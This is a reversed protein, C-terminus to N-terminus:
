DPLKGIWQTLRAAIDLNNKELMMLHGNGKVGQDELRWFTTPVGAQKLFAASCHDYPAHYSAEGTVMLVPVNQLNVLKRAPEKQRWCAVLGPADPQAQQEILIEAPDTVAPEYRVPINTLGWALERTAQTANQFPPGSPEIAVIGKVLQPRADAISWGFLGAQSHTLLVAPGIKDLLAVAAQQVLTESQKNDALSPVVGGYFADFVSDGKTGPKGETGAPWQTHKDAQPWAKYTESATFLRQVMPVPSTRLKGGGEPFWPSRGRSPQDIMYVVYGQDVFYDAWGKRGDPTGMWNTGTQGLGHFFVVPYKHKVKAPAWGEVYMQGTKVEQAAEGAYSGGVYFFTHRAVSTPVFDAPGFADASAPMACAAIAVLGSTALAVAGRPNKKM